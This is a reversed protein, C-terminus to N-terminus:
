ARRIGLSYYRMVGTGASAGNAFSVGVDSTADITAVPAWAGSAVQVWRAFDTTTFLQARFVPGRNLSVVARYVTNVALDVGTDVPTMINSGDYGCVMIRSSGADFGFGFHIGLASGLPSAGFTTSKFIGAFFRNNASHVTSAAFILSVSPKGLATADTNLYIGQASIRWGSSIANTSASPTGADLCPVSGDMVGSAATVSALTGGWAQVSGIGSLSLSTSEYQLGQNYGSGQRATVFDSRQGGAVRM